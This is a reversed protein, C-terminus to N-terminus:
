SSFVHFRNQPRSAQSERAAHQEGALESVRLARARIVLPRLLEKPSVEVLKNPRRVDSRMPHFIAVLEPIALGAGVLFEQQHIGGLVGAPRGEVVRFQGRRERM